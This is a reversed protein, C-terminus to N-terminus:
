PRKVKDGVKPAGSGSFTGSASNADANVVTLVGVPAEVTRLPKGTVPDKITRSVRTIALKDGNQIGASTGANVVIDNGSVDAVVADLPPAAAVKPAEPAPLSAAKADLNSALQTVAQKVAEGLISQSFNSSGM